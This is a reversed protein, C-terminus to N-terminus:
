QKTNVIRKLSFNVNSQIPKKDRDLQQLTDDNVRLYYQANNPKDPNLQYVTADPNGSIGRLTTWLGYESFSSNRGIYQLHLKYLAETTDNQAKDYLTLTTIIGCCDACPTTGQWTGVGHMSETKAALEAQQEAENQAPCQAAFALICILLISVAKGNLRM